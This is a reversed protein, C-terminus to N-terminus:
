LPILEQSFCYSPPAALRVATISLPWAVLSMVSETSCVQNSRVQCLRHCLHHCSLVTFIRVRRAVWCFIISTCWMIGHLATASPLDPSHWSALPLGRQETQDSCAHMGVSASTGNLLYRSGGRLLPMQLPWSAVGWHQARVDSCAAFCFVATGHLGDVM